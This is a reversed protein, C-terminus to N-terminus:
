EEGLGKGVGTPGEGRVLDFLDLQLPANAITLRVRLEAGKRTMEAEFRVRHQEGSPTELEFTPRSFSYSSQHMPVSLTLIREALGEVRRRDLNIQRIPEPMKPLIQLIPRSEFPIQEIEGHSVMPPLQRTELLVVGGAFGGRKELKRRRVREIEAREVGLLSEIASIVELVDALEEKISDTDKADVAELAEEVLKQRLGQLHAEGTVYAIDVSEGRGEIGAPVKDRVLKNFEIREENTGFADECIVDCGSRKLTYYVHSLVGGRLSVVYAREKVVETLRDIFKRDRVISGDKPEVAVRAISSDEKSLEILKQLDAETGIVYSSGLRGVKGLGESTQLDIEWRDHYWPLVPSVADNDALGIFWMVVVASNSRDAILRTVHAVERIWDEKQISSGWDDPPAVDHVVWSGADDPAIFRDKYRVRRDLISSPSFDARGGGGGADVDFVDHPFYYIGEPIGWLSEIRVRRTTPDALAWASALAPIYHHGILTLENAFPDLQGLRTSFESTLWRIASDADRLEHSRPLMERDEKPINLGDTRLVLPARCLIRLDSRLNPPVAGNEVISSLIGPDDLVYFDPMRYGLETYLKANALKKYIDLERDKAM